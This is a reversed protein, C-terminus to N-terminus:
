GRHEVLNEVSASLLLSGDGDCAVVDPDLVITDVIGPASMGLRKVASNIATPSSLVSSEMELGVGSTREQEIQASLANSEILTTVAANTLAIRAFSLVAVLVIVIAAMRGLMPLISSQAEPRASGATRIARVEPPVPRAPRQDLAYRQRASQRYAQASVAM